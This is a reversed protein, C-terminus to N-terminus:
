SSFGFGFCWGVGQAEIIEQLAEYRLQAIAADQEVTTMERHKPLRLFRRFRWRHRLVPDRPAIKQGVFELRALHKESMVWLADSSQRHHIVISRVADDLTIREKPTLLDPQLAELKDLLKERLNTWLDGAREIMACWRTASAGVDVLLREVLAEVAEAIESQPLPHKEDPKWDHWKPGHLGLCFDSHLTPLVSLMLSWAVNPEHKRVLDLVTLRNALPVKTSPYWLIFIEHLSGSARNGNKGGPDIRALRALCLTTRGFFELNWTLTELAWLLYTHPSTPGLGLNSDQDYFMQRLFPTEGNLGADVADLFPTPAAEALLPLVPAFSPWQTADGKAKDFLSWVVSRAVEEGSGGSVFSIESSLATMLALTSAIGERLTGSIYPAQGSAEVGKIEIVISQSQAPASLAELAIEKFRQIDDATLFSALLHWADEPATMMWIGGVLRIPPDADKSWRVLTEQLQEYTTGALRGLVARDAAHSDQWAGVLLPALLKRAIQPQAWAPRGLTPECAIKRRLAPLSRRALTALDRARDHPTGMELLAKEAADRVIRPLCDRGHTGMSQGALFVHNGNKVARSVGAVEGTFRPVLISRSHSLALEQWSAADEVVIARSFWEEREPKEQADIVAALFALLEDVSEGQLSLPAAAGQLWAEIRESAAQRGGIVLAPSFAPVTKATWDSWYDELSRAGQPHKGLLMSLWLHVAPAQESWTEIDHADYARVDVWVKESCRKQVWEGKKPWQRPTVFAFTTEKPSLGLPSKTRKEYDGDAKDKINKDVGMEWASVGHPVFANGDHAVVIGDWGGLQVGEDAFFQLREINPATTQILRRVLRPLQSRLDLREAWQAIDKANILLNSTM